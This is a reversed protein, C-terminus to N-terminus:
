GLYQEECSQQIYVQALVVSLNFTIGLLFTAIISLSPSPVGLLFFLIGSMSIFRIYAKKNNLQERYKSVQTAGLIGGAAFIALYVGM